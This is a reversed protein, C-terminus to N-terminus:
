KNGSDWPGGDGLVLSDHWISKNVQVDLTLIADFNKGAAWLATARWWDVATRYAPIAGTPGHAQM